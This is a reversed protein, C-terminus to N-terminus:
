RLIIRTRCLGSPQGDHGPQTHVQSMECRFLAFRVRIMTLLISVSGFVARAPTISSIEKALNLTDIAVNLTSLVGNRGKQRKSKAAMTSASPLQSFATRRAPQSSSDLGWHLHADDRAEHLWVWKAFLVISSAAGNYYVTSTATTFSTSFGVAHSQTQHMSVPKVGSGVHM